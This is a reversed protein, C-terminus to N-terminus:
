IGYERCKAKARVQVERARELAEARSIGRISEAVVEPHHAELMALREGHPTRSKRGQPTHCHVTPEAGCRPCGVFNRADTYMWGTIAPTSSEIPVAWEDSRTM